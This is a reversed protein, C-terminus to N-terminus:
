RGIDIFPKTSFYIVASIAALYVVFRVPNERILDIITRSKGAMQMRAYDERARALREKQYEDILSRAQPYQEEARLWIAAVSVGWFGSSTEYFEIGNVTLLERVEDAEDDPVNNLKFLKVPM